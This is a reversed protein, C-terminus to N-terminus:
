ASSQSCICSLLTSACHSGGGGAVATLAEEDLERNPDPPMLVNLVKDSDRLVVIETEAPVEIGRSRLAAHPDRELQALYDPDMMGAMTGSLSDDFAEAGFSINM